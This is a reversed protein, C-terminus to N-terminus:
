ADEAEEERAAAALRRYKVYLAAAFVVAFIWLPVLAVHRLRLSREKADLSKDIGATVEDLSTIAAEVKKLDLTHQTPALGVLLTRADRLRFAEDDVLLVGQGVRDVYQATRVYDAEAAEIRDVITSFQKLEEDGPDHCELCGPHARAVLARLEPHLDKEEGARFRRDLEEPPPVIRQILHGHRKPGGGHCQLCGHFGDVVAHASDGFRDATNAHCQGCVAHVSAFGPPAAAHSGHCTACSPASPDAGTLLQRGHVSERYEEVVEVPLHFAGMLARDAHCKACTDPINRPNTRSSPQSSPVIDHAGHCDTCVAVRTDGRALTRGHGSTRYRALQDTRLGYPNMREVDSHCGGCREPVDKREPKGRFSSGHDFRAAGIEAHPVDYRPEGGHCETCALHRHVSSAVVTGEKAHCTACTVEDARAAAALAAIVGLLTWAIRM